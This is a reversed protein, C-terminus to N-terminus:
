DSGYNVFLGTDGLRHSDFKQMWMVYANWTGYNAAPIINIRGFSNSTWLDDPYSLAWHNDIVEGAGNFPQNERM